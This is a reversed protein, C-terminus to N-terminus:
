YALGGGRYYREIASVVENPKIIAMCRGVAKILGFVPQECLSQDQEKGDNLAVVRSRWCAGTRCCSLAGLSHLTTQLPYQTWSVPERGGLLAVYPKEFAGFIHQVFTIPGVGGSAWWCLRILQRIDTQGVLDIVNKLRPHDHGSEGVQVFQVEGILRDVVEQYYEIPWQKLTFDHKTGAVVVWFRSDRRTVHEKVQNMWEKEQSSLWLCGRNTTLDLPIGLQKGLYDTYGRLFSNPIQNSRNITETYHMEIVEADAEDLKTIYPNHDFIPDCSTRVDTQFEGPYRDHLSQIAATLTVIDGPSLHCRLIIKRPM